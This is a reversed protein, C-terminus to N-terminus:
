TELGRKTYQDIGKKGQKEVRTVSDNQVELQKRVRVQSSYRAATEARRERSRKRSRFSILAQHRKSVSGGARMEGSEM